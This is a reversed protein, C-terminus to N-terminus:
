LGLMIEAQREAEQLVDAALEADTLARSLQVAGILLAYVALVLSRTEREVPDRGLRAGIEAVIGLVGTTYATRTALSGRAIEDLLAASPCGDSRADRHDLSLYQGLMAVVGDAGPGLAAFREQQGRLEQSVVHAVLDDKSDFHSYFAGNTLGADKMLVAVGSGDIGDQKFRRAAAALIRARTAEKHAEDYRAM